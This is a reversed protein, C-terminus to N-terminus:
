KGNSKCTLRNSPKNIEFISGTDYTVRLTYQTSIKDLQRSEVTYSKWRGQFYKNLFHELKNEIQTHYSYDLIALSQNEMRQELEQKSFAGNFEKEMIEIKKREDEKFIADQHPSYKYNYDSLRKVHYIGYTTRITIGLHHLTAELYIDKDDVEAVHYFIYSLAEISDNFRYTLAAPCVLMIQKQRFFMVSDRIMRARELPNNLDYKKEEMM